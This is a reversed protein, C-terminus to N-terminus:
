RSHSPRLFRRCVVSIDAGMEGLHVSERMRLGLSIPTIHYRSRPKRLKVEEGDFNGAEEDRRLSHVDQCKAIVHVRSLVSKGLAAIKRFPLLKQTM